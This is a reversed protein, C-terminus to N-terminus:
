KSEIRWSYLRKMGEFSFIQVSLLMWLIQWDGVEKFSAGGSSFIYDLGYDVFPLVLAFFVGSIFAITYSQGRITQILEDEIKEKSLSIVLLSVLMGYKVFGKIFGNDLSLKNVFLGVFFITFFVIGVKKYSHPLNMKKRLADLNDRECAKIGEVTM